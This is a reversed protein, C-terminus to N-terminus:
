EFCLKYQQWIDPWKKDHGANKVVYYRYVTDSSLSKVYNKVMFPKVVADDDGVIHIQPVQIFPAINRPNVHEDYPSVRHHTTFGETDLNGAVSMLLVVDDREHALRAAITAGGSYGVLEFKKITTTAKIRDLAAHYSEVIRSSYILSTWYEPTCEGAFRLDQYQCPRGMYYVVDSCDKVAMRLGIPDMPTPNPSIRAMSTWAYGDGEIFIRAVRAPKSFEDHAKQSKVRDYNDYGVIKLHDGGGWVNKQFGARKAINDAKNLRENVSNHTCASVVFVCFVLIAVSCVRNILHKGM